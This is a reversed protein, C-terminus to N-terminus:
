SDVVIGEMTDGGSYYVIRAASSSTPRVRLLTVSNPPLVIRSKFEFDIEFSPTSIRPTCIRPISIKPISIKAISTRSDKDQSDKDEM